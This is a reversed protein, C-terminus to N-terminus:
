VSQFIEILEKALENPEELMIMHGSKSFWRIFKEDVLNGHLQLVEKSFVEDYKGTLWYVPITNRRIFASYDERMKMGELAALIGRLSTKGAIRQALNLGAKNTQLYAAAFLHQITQQIFLPHGLKIAQISRNRDNKKLESDAFAISNLLCVSQIKDPFKAALSLAVYGGMSHGVVPVHKLKLDELVANVAKAMFEMSHVYAFSESKGHGPLDILVVRYFKGLYPLVFNFVDTSGLFGHLLVIPSGSGVDRYHIKGGFFTLYSLKNRV